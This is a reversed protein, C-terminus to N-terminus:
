HYPAWRSRCEKGVRREESRVRTITRSCLLSPLWLPSAWARRKGTHKELRLSRSLIDCLHSPRPPAVLFQPAPHCEHDQEQEAKGQESQRCRQSFPRLGGGHRAFSGLHGDGFKMALDVHDAAEAVKEQSPDRIGDLGIIRLGIPPLFLRGQELREVM